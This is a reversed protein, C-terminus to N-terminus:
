GALFGQRIPASDIRRRGIPSEGVSVSLLRGGYREFQGLRPTWQGFYRSDPLSPRALMGSAGIVAAAALSALLALRAAGRPPLALAAAGLPVLAGGGLGGLSNFVLDRLSPDRGPIVQQALEVLLSLLLAGGGAAGIRGTVMGIGVGLPVFLLLNLIVDAVGRSGCVLCTSWGEEGAEAPGLTALVVAALGVGLVAWGGPRSPGPPQISRSSV